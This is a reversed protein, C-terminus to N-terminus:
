KVGIDIKTLPFVNLNIQYVSSADSKNAELAALEMRFQKIKERVMAMNKKSLKLTVTSFDIIDRSFRNIGDLALRLTSLQCNAIALSAWEDGTSVNQDTPEFYGDANERILGLLKLQAIANKAEKPPISPELLRALAAYDGKFKYFGLLERIAIYYWKEFYKYEEAALTKAKLARFTLLQEFYQKKEEHNESQDFLILLNFYETEKKKFQLLRSFRAALKLSLNRKKNIVKTFTSADFGVASAVFRHSFNPDEKKREKYYDKLFKRYDFYDFVNIMVYGRDAFGV